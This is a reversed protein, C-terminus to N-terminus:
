LPLEENVTVIMHECPGQTADTASSYGTDVSSWEMSVRVYAINSNNLLTIEKVNGNTVVTGGAYGGNYNVAAIFGFSSNYSCVYSSGADFYEAPVRIVAGSSAPIFGTTSVRSASKTAGSSSLRTKGIYGVGNLINKNTDIAYPVWNKYSSPEEWIAVGNREIKKVAGNPITIAKVTSFDM